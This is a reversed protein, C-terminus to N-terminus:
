FPNKQQSCQLKMVSNEISKNLKKLKKYIRSVLGRESTYSTFGKAGTRYVEEEWSHYYGKRQPLNKLM